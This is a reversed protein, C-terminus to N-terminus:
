YISLKKLATIPECFFQASAILLGWVGVAEGDGTDGMLPVDTVRPSGAHDM